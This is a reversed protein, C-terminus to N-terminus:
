PLATLPAIIDFYAFDGAAWTFPSTASVSGHLGNIGPVRAIASNTAGGAAVADGTYRAPASTDIYTVRGIVEHAVISSVNFPLGVQLSNGSIAPVGTVTVAVQVYALFGARWWKGTATANTFGAVSPTYNTAPTELSDKLYDGNAAMLNLKASTVVERYTWTTATYAM